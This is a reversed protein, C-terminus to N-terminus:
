FSLKQILEHYRANLLAAKKEDHSVAAGNVFRMGQEGMFDVCFLLTYFTVAKRQTEGANMEDLWFGTYDNDAGMSLLAMNTLGVVLLPDGCCMEDVDVIGSLKGEHILVNKTTSDDLFPTPKVSAFYDELTRMIGTVADCVDDRFVGNQRIRECSRAVSSELYGTWAAFSGGHGAHPYGYREMSPLAAAKRQIITLERVIGRKEEGTLTHYVEGLDKGPLFSILTYFDERYAGHKLIRPVPVGLAGLKPLWEVSGLYYEKNEEGTVRLVFEGSATKVYYVRHCYGNTFRRMEIPTMGLEYQLIGMATEKERDLGNL